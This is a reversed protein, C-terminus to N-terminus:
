KVVERLTPNMRRQPKRLPTCNYKTYIHHTCLKPHLGKMDSYDWAFATKHKNLVLTFMEIQQMSLTSGIKLTKGPEIEVERITSDGQLTSTTNPAMSSSPINDIKQTACVSSFFEMFDGSPSFNIFHSLVDDETPLKAEMSEEIM